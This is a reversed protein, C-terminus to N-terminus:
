LSFYYKPLAYYRVRLRISCSWWGADVEFCRKLLAQEEFRERRDNIWCHEEDQITYSPITTEKALQHARHHVPNKSIARRKGPLHVYRHCGSIRRGSILIVTCNTYHIEGRSMSTFIGLILFLNKFIVSIIPHGSTHSSRWYGSSWSHQDCLFFM